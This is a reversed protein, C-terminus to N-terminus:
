EYIMSRTAESEEGIQTFAVVPGGRRASGYLPFSRCFKGEFSAALAILESAVVVGQGGQGHIRIENLM